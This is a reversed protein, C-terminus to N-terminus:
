KNIIKDISFTMKIFYALNKAGGRKNTKINHWRNHIPYIDYTDNIRYQYETIKKVALGLEALDEIEKQRVPLRVLRREKQDGKYQKWEESM